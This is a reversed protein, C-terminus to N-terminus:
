IQGTGESTLCTPMILAMTALVHRVKSPIKPIDRFFSFERQKTLYGWWGLFWIGLTTLIYAGLVMARSSSFFISLDFEPITLFIIEGVGWFCIGVMTWRIIFIRNSANMRQM